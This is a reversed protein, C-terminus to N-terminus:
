TMGKWYDRPAESALARDLEDAGGGHAPNPCPEVRGPEARPRHEPGHAAPAVRRVVPEAGPGHPLDDGRPGRVRADFPANGSVREPDPGSLGEGRGPGGHHVHLGDAPPLRGRHRPAVGPPLEGAPAGDGPEAVPGALGISGPRRKTPRPAGPRKTPRRAGRGPRGQARATGGPRRGRRAGAEIESGDREVARATAPSFTAVMWGARDAPAAGALRRPRARRSGQWRAGEGAGRGPGAEFRGRDGSAPRSNWAPRVHSEHLVPGRGDDLLDPGRIRVRGGEHEPPRRPRPAFTCGTPPCWSRGVSGSALPWRTGMSPVHPPRRGHPPLFFTPRPRPYPTSDGAPVTTPPRRRGRLSQYWRSSPYPPRTGRGNGPVCRLTYGRPM